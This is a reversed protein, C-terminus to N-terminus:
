HKTEQWVIKGDVDEVRITGPNLEVNKQVAAVDPLEVPYWGEKRFFIYTQM